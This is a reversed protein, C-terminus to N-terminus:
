KQISCLALANSNAYSCSYEEQRLKNYFQFFLWAPSLSQKKYGQLYEVCTGPVNSVSVVEGISEHSVTAHPQALTEEGPKRM